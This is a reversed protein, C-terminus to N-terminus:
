LKPSTFRAILYILFLILFVFILLIFMHGSCAQSVLQDLRAMTRGLLGDTKSFDTEMEKILRTQSRVEDGITISLDKMRKIQDHLVDVHQDNEELMSMQVHDAGANQPTTGSSRAFLAERSRDRVSTRSM